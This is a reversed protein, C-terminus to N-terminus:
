RGLIQSVTMTRVDFHEAIARMSFENRYMRAARAYNVPARKKTMLGPESGVIRGLLAKVNPDDIM